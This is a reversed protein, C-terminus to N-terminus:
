SWAVMVALQTARSSRGRGAPQSGSGSCFSSILAGQSRRSELRKGPSETGSGLWVWCFPSDPLHPKLAELGQSAPLLITHLQLGVTLYSSCYELLFSLFQTLILNM